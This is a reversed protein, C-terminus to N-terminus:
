PKIPNLRIVEDLCANWANVEARQKWSAIGSWSRRQPLLVAVPAPQEAYIPESFCSLDHGLGEVHAKNEASITAWSFEPDRFGVPVDSSTFRKRFGADIIQGAFHRLGGSLRGMFEALETVQQERVVPEGCKAAPASHNALIEERLKEAGRPGRMLYEPAKNLLERAKTLEAQLIKKATGCTLLDATRTHLQETLREVEAQLRIVHASEPQAETEAWTDQWAGCERCCVSVFVDVKKPEGGAPPMPGALTVLFADAERRVRLLHDDDLFGGHAVASLEEVLSRADAGPAKSVAVPNVLAARLETTEKFMQANSLREILRDVHDRSLTVTKNTM